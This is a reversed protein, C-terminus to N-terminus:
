LITDKLGPNGRVKKVKDSQRHSYIRLHYNIM